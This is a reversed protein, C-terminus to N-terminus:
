NNSNTLLLISFFCILVFLLLGLVKPHILTNLVNTKFDGTGTPTPTTTATSTQYATQSASIYIVEDSVDQNTIPQNPLSTTTQSSSPLASGATVDQETLQQGFTSSLAIIVILVFIVVLVWKVASSNESTLLKSFFDGSEGGVFMKLVVFILFILIILTVFWPALTAIFISISSSMVVFLSAVLAIIAYLAKEGPVEKLFRTLSLIGFVIAFVFLFLFVPAMFTVLSIDMFTAM